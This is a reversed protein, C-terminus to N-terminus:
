SGFRLFLTYKNYRSTFHSNIPRTINRKSAPNRVDWRSDTQQRKYRDAWYRSGTEIRSWPFDGPLVPPTTIGRREQVM